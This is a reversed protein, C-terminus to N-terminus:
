RHGKNGSELHNIVLDLGQDVLFKAASKRDPVVSAWLCDLVAVAYPAPLLPDLARLKSLAGLMVAVGDAKRLLRQNEAHVTCLATMCLLAFHRVPEPQGGGDATTVATASNVPHTIGSSVISTFSARGGVTPSGTDNVLGLLVPILGATGFADRTEPVLTFLHHLHRLAAELHSAGPSGAVFALLATPGGAREYEDPCLPSLTHLTSLSASRLPALQDPNWRRIAPHGEGISVYLLLVHMLGGAVAAELVDPLLGGRVLASWVLLRLEHDLADTTLAFNAVLDHHPALEPCTGAALLPEFAGAAAAATCFEPAELLLNMVVLVDNRLEKDAKSFGNILLWRLLQVLAEALPQVVPVDAVAAAAAADAHGSGGGNTMAQHLSGEEMEQGSEASERAGLRVNPTEGFEEDLQQQCKSNATGGGRWNVSSELSRSGTTTAWDDDQGSGVHPNFGLSGMDGRSAGGGGGGGGGELGGPAASIPRGSASRFSPAGNGMGNLRLSISGPGPGASGDQGASGNAGASSEARSGEQALRQLPPLPQALVTRALPAHEVVNWALEAAMVTTESRAGRGLLAALCPLVGAQVMSTCNDPSYSLALLAGTLPAALANDAADSDALLARALATILDEVVGSKNLLSFRM